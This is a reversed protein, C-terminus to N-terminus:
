IGKKLSHSVPSGAPEGQAALHFLSCKLIGGLIRRYRQIIYLGGDKAPGACTYCPKDCGIHGSVIHLPAHKCTPCSPSSRIRAIYMIHLEEECIVLPKENVVGFFRGFCHLNFRLLVPVLNGPIELPIRNLKGVTSEGHHRLSQHPYNMPIGVLGAGGQEHGYQLNRLLIEIGHDGHEHSFPVLYEIVDFSCAWCPYLFPNVVPCQLPSIDREGRHFISYEQAIESGQKM